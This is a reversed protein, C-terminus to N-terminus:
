LNPSSSLGASVNYLRRLYKQTLFNPNLVHTTMFRSRIDSPILEACYKLWRLPVESIAAFGTCDLILDFLRNEYIPLALTQPLIKIPQDFLVQSSICVKFIYFMLLQLDM